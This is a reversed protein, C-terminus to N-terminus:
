DALKWQYMAAEGYLLSSGKSYDVALVGQFMKRISIKSESTNTRGDSFIKTINKIHRSGDLDVRIMQGKNKPYIAM